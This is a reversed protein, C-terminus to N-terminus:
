ASGLSTEIWAGALPAVVFVQNTKPRRLTEIWAGALPAVKVLTVMHNWQVTEIWAGALPAVKPSMSDGTVRLHKLGRVRSPHSLNSLVEKRIALWQKLGRVRSPHSKCKFIM